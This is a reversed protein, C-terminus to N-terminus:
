DEQTTRVPVFSVQQVNSKNFKPIVLVVILGAILVGLVIISSYESWWSSSGTWGLWDFSEFIVVAGILLGIIVFTISWGKLYEKPIWLAAFIMLVLFVAIGIGFRPFIQSFFVPVFEFRLSLLGVALSIIINVGKNGSMVKTATLIGYVVAFILLFPLVYDFVGMTQWDNLMTAIEYVM